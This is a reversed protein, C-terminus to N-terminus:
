EAHQRRLRHDHVHLQVFSQGVGFPTAHPSGTTKNIFKVPEGCECVPKYGLIVAAAKQELPLDSFDPYALLDARLQTDSINKAWTRPNAVRWALLRDRLTM